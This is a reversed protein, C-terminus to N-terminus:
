NNNMKNNESGLPANLCVSRKTNPCEFIPSTMYYNILSEMSNFPTIIQDGVELTGDQKLYIRSHCVGNDFVTLSLSFDSNHGGNRILYTGVNGDSRLEIEAQERSISGFYWEKGAYIGKAQDRYKMWTPIDDILLEEVYTHPIVGIDGNSNRVKFYHVEFGM